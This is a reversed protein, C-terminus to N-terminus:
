KKHEKEKKSLDGLIKAVKYYVAFSTISISLIVGTLLMWPSTGIKKDLIAGGTALAVIPVAIIWGLDWALSVMSINDNTQAQDKNPLIKSM